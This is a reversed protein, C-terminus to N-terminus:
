VPRTEEIVVFAVAYDQEDSISLHAGLRRESLNKALQSSYGLQPRGAASHGIWLDNFGVEKGIGTGLAKAFAEKAAWRRAVFRHRAPNEVPCQVRETESLVRHFFRDGHRDLAEAIRQMSVIDTGVGFIM